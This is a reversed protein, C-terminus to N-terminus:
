GRLRRGHLRGTWDDKGESRLRDLLRLIEHKGDLEEALAFFEDLNGFRETVCDIRSSRIPVLQIEAWEIVGTLGLGGITAVFLETQEHPSCSTRGTDSRLLGFRAVHRGFCGRRHHNKGHVDNAIAGGLTVYKTGPTVPLFWGRPIAVTLIDELTVGAEAVLTGTSWDASIFRDLPRMHLVHDSAALCSDGYSRGCGYALTTGHQAVVARLTEPLESRWRCATYTQRFPPYNGWSLLRTTSM